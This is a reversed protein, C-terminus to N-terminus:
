RRRRLLALLGLAGLLATTPEPIIQLGNVRPGNSNNFASATAEITLVGDGDSTFTGTGSYDDLSAPAAGNSTFPAISGTTGNVGTYGVTNAISNSDYSWFKIVYSTNASIGVGSLTLTVTSSNNAFTFDRYLDPNTGGAGRNFFSGSSTITIDGLTSSHTVSSSSQEVFGSEVISSGFDVSLIAAHASTTFGLTAAALTLNRLSSKSKM